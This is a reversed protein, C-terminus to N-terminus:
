ERPWLRVIPGGSRSGPLLPTETRVSESSGPSREIRSGWGAAVLAYAADMCTYAGYPVRSRSNACCILLCGGCDCCGTRDRHVLSLGTGVGAQLVRLVVSVCNVANDRGCACGGTCPCVLAAVAAALWRVPPVHMCGSCIVAAYTARSYVHPEGCIRVAERLAADVQAATLGDLEVAIISTAVSWTSANPWARFAPARTSLIDFVVDRSTMDTSRVGMAQRVLELQENTCNYFVLGAHGPVQAARRTDCCGLWM